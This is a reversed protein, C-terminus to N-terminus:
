PRVRAGVRRAEHRSDSGLFNSLEFFSSTRGWDIVYCEQIKPALFESFTFDFRERSKIIQYDCRAGEICRAMNLLDGDPSLLGNGEMNIVRQAKALLAQEEGTFLLMSKRAQRAKLIGMPIALLVIIPIMVVNIILGILKGVFGIM